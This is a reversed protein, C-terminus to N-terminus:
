IYDRLADKFIDLLEADGFQYKDEINLVILEKQRTASPFKRRIIDRHKGEMVYITDAWDIMKQNVRIRARESTGASRAHHVPHNKFL